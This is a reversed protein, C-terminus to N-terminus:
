NNGGQQDPDAVAFTLQMKTAEPKNTKIKSHAFLCVKRSFPKEKQYQVGDYYGLEYVKDLVGEMIDHFIGSLVGEITYPVTFIFTRYQKEVYAQSEEEDVKVKLTGERNVDLESIYYPFIEGNLTWIQASSSVINSTYSAVIKFKISASTGTNASLGIKEAKPLTKVTITLTGGEEDSPVGNIEFLYSTIDAYVEVLNFNEHAIPVTMEVEYVNKLDEVMSIPQYDSTDLRLVGQIKDIPVDSSQRLTELRIDYTYKSGLSNLGSTLLEAIRDNTLM